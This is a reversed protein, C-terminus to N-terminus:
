KKLYLATRRAYHGITVRGTARRMVVGVKEFENLKEVDRGSLGLLVVGQMTAGPRAVAKFFVKTRRREYCHLVAIAFPAYHGLLNRIFHPDMLEGWVFTANPDDLISKKIKMGEPHIVTVLDDKFFTTDFM